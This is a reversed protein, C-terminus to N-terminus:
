NRFPCPVSAACAESPDLLGTHCDEQPKGHRKIPMIDGPRSQSKEALIADGNEMGTSHPSDVQDSDKHCVVVRCCSVIKAKGELLPASPPDAILSPCSALHQPFYLIREGINKQEVELHWFQIAKIYRALKRSKKRVNRDQHHRNM